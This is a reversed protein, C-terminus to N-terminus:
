VAQNMQVDNYYCGVCTIFAADLQVTTDMAFPLTHKFYFYRHVKESSGIKVTTLLM